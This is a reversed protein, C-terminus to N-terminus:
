SLWLKSIKGNFIFRMGTGLKISADNVYDSSYNKLVYSNEIVNVRKELLCKQKTSIFNELDAMAMM